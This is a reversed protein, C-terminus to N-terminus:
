VNYGVRAADSLSLLFYPYTNPKVFSFYDMTLRILEQFEM